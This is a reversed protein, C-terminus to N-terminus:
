SPDGVGARSQALWDEALEKNAFAVACFHDSTAFMDGGSENYNRVLCMVCFDRAECSMCQPFSGNRVGRLAQAGPSTWWISEVSQRRVDGIVYSRFGACPYVEGTAAFCANDVCVGCVPQDAFDPARVRPDRELMVQYDDDEALVDSIVERTQSLDLRHALNSKDFDSRAMLVFDSLVRIKRQRCWQSVSRYSGRNQVMVPCSVQVPVDREILREIALVTRDRSGPCRTIADHVAADMSYLSVQVMNCNASALADLVGESLDLGNTLVNIVFDLRRAEALIEPFHPHLTPEGGSFTVSVTGHAHLQRLIDMVMGPEAHGHRSRGQYCHVCRENCSHTLEIHAGFIRPNERFHRLMLEDSPTARASGENSLVYFMSTKPAEDAYTFRRDKADLGEATDATVLFGEDELERVFELVDPVLDAASVGAYEEALEVAIDHVTRPERGLCALFDAGVEDYVRDRRTLQSTVYGLGDFTRIFTNASQRVFM